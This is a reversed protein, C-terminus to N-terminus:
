ALIKVHVATVAKTTAAVAATAVEAAAAVVQVGRPCECQCECTFKLEGRKERTPIYKGAFNFQIRLKTDRRQVVSCLGTGGEVAEPLAHTIRIGM